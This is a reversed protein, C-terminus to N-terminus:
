DTGRLAKAADKGIQVESKDLASLIPAIASVPVIGQSVLVLLAKASDGKLESQIKQLSALTSTMDGLEKISFRKKSNLQQQLTIMLQNSTELIKRDMERYRKALEDKNM